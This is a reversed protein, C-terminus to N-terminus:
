FLSLSVFLCLSLCVQTGWFGVKADRGGGGGRGRGGRGGVGEVAADLKGAGSWLWKERVAEVFGRNNFDASLHKLTDYVAGTGNSVTHAEWTNGAELALLRAQDRGDMQNVVGRTVLECVGRWGEKDPLIDRDFKQEHCQSDINTYSM